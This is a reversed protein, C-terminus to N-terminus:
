TLRIIGISCELENKPGKIKMTQQETHALAEHQLGYEFASGTMKWFPTGLYFSSELCIYGNLHMSRGFFPTIEFGQFSGGSDAM